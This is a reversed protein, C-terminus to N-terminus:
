KAVAEKANSRKGFHKVGTILLTGAFERVVPIKELFICLRSVYDLGFSPLIPHLFEYPEVSVNKFGSKQLARKLPWRFFSTESDSDQFIRKVVPINKEIAIQPNLSNPECFWIQGGPRLVRHVEKCVGSLQVHHLISNGIVFNFYNEPYPIHLADGVEFRANKYRSLKKKAVKIAKPSIDIGTINLKSKQRLLYESLIGTGCGIELIRPNRVNLLRGLILNAKRSFRVKAVPRLNGYYTEGTEQVLRDFHNREVDQLKRGVKNKSYKFKLVDFFVSAYGPGAKAVNFASRGMDQTRGHWTVPIEKLRYGLICPYLGTEANISFGSGKLLPRIKEIIEYKYLRFNNTVDIYKVGLFIRALFHFTRNALKKPLPYGILRGGRMYRSGLVGGYNSAAKLLRKIDGTNKVFDCDLMLVYETKDSIFELGKRIANGVGGNKRRHVPHLKKYKKALRELIEGTKDSSCDNVVIIELIQRNFNEVLLKVMKEVNAEENRAPIVASIKIM